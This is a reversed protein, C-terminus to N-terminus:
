ARQKGTQSRKECAYLGGNQRSKLFMKKFIAKSAQMGGSVEAVEAM